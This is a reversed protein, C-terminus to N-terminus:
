EGGIIPPNEGGPTEAVAPAAPVELPPLIGLEIAEAVNEEVGVFALLKHPDNKFRARIKAPLSSFGERATNVADLADQYDGVNSFDGFQGPDRADQPPQGTRQWQDIIFNMDCEDKFAQKTRSPGKFM